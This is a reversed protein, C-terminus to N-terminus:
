GTMQSSDAMAPSSPHPPNDQMHPRPFAAGGRNLGRNQARRGGQVIMQRPHQQLGCLQQPEITFLGLGRDLVPKVPQDCPCLRIMGALNQHQAVLHDELHHRHQAVQSPDGAGMGVLNHDHGIDPPLRIEQDRGEPLPQEARRRPDGLGGRDQAIVAKIRRQEPADLPVQDRHEETSPLDPPLETPMEIEVPRGAHGFPRRRQRRKAHRQGDPQQRPGTELPRENGIKERPDTQRGLKRGRDLLDAIGAKRWGENFADARRDLRAIGHGPRALMRIEEVIHPRHARVPCARVLGKQGLELVPHVRGKRRRVRGEGPLEAQGHGIKRWAPLDRLRLHLILDPALPANPGRQWLRQALALPGGACSQRLHGPGGVAPPPCLGAPSSHSAAKGPSPKSQAVVLPDPMHATGSIQRRVAPLHRIRSQLVAPSNTNKNGLVIEQVAAAFHPNASIEDVALVPEHQHGRGGVRGRDPRTEAREGEGSHRRHPGPFQGVFDAPQRALDRCRGPAPDVAAVALRLDPAPEMGIANGTAFDLDEPPALPNAGDRRIDEPRIQELRADAIAHRPEDARQRIKRRPAAVHGDAIEVAIKKVGPGVRHRARGRRGRRRRGRFAAADGRRKAGSLQGAGLGCPMVTDIQPPERQIVEQNRALRLPHDHERRAKQVGSPKGVGIELPHFPRLLELIGANEEGIRGQKQAIGLDAPEDTVPRGM